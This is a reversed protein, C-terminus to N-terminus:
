VFSNGLFCLSPRFCTPLRHRLATTTRGETELRSTSLISTVPDLWRRLPPRRLLPRSKTTSSRARRLWPVPHRRPRVPGVPHSSVLSVCTSPVLRESPPDVETECVGGVFQGDGPVDEPVRVKFDELRKVCLDEAVGPGPDGYDAGGVRRWEEVGPIWRDSGVTLSNTFLVSM